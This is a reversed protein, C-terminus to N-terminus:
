CGFTPGFGSMERNWLWATLGTEWRGTGGDRQERIVAEEGRGRWDGLGVMEAAPVTRGKVLCSFSARNPHEWPSVCFCNHNSGEM